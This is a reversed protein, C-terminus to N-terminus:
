RPTLILDTVANFQSHHLQYLTRGQVVPGKHVYM